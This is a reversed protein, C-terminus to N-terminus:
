WGIIKLARQDKISIFAILPVLLGISVGVVIHVTIDSISNALLVSRALASVITHSLYIAISARGIVALWAYKIYNSLISLVSVIATSICVAVSFSQIVVGSEFPNLLTILFGGLSAILICLQNKRFMERFSMGVLIYPLNVFAQQTWPSHLGYRQLLVLFVVSVITALPWFLVKISFARGLSSVGKIILFALFLAWLFWFHEKPPLPIFPFDQWNVPNNASQGAVIKCFFFVYTWLILPWILRQAHKLVYRFWNQPLTKYLFLGSVLFMLPMHFSYIAHDIQGFYGQFSLIRASELGRLTHGIVVLIIGVGKAGDVWEVRGVADKAENENRPQPYGDDETGQSSVIKENPMFFRNKQAIILHLM